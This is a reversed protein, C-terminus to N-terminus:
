SRIRRKLARLGERAMSKPLNVVHAVGEAGEHGLHRSLWAVYGPHTPAFDPVLKRTLGIFQRFADREPGYLRRA